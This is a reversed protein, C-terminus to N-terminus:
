IDKKAVSIKSETDYSLDARQLLKLITRTPKREKGASGSELHQIAGSASLKENLSLDSIQDNPETKSSMIAQEWLSTRPTRGALLVIFRKCINLRALHRWPLTIFLLKFISFTTIKLHKFSLNANCTGAKPFSTRACTSLSHRKFVPPCAKLKASTGRNLASFFASTQGTDEVKHGNM